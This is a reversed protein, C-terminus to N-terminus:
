VNGIELSVSDCLSGVIISNAHFAPTDFQFPFIIAAGAAGRIHAHTHGHTCSLAYDISRSSSSSSITTSEHPPIKM